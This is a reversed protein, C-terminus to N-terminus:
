VDEIVFKGPPRLPVKSKMQNLHNPTLPELSSPDNLRDGTLPRSNVIAMAEFFLLSYLSADDLRGLSQALTANLVNQITCIQGQDCYLLLVPGRLSIFCRLSNIFSDTSLDELMELHVARSYLCTFILGYRKHKKRNRKMIFPGFCDMGCHTFPASAEIRDKPLKAM